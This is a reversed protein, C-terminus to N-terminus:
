KFLEKVKRHTFKEDQYYEIDFGPKKKFLDYEKFPVGQKTKHVADVFSAVKDPRLWFVPDNDTESFVFPRSILENPCLVSSINIISVKNMEVFTVDASTFYDNIDEKLEKMTVWWSRHVMPEHKDSIAGFIFSHTLKRTEFPIARFFSGFMDRTLLTCRDDIGNCDNDYLVVHNGDKDIEFPYAGICHIYVIESFQDADIAQAFYTAMRSPYSESNISCILTAIPLKGSQALERFDKAKRSLGYVITDSQSGFRSLCVTGITGTVGNIIVLKKM